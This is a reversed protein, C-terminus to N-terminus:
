NTKVKTSLLSPTPPQLMPAPPAPTVPGAATAEGPHMHANFMQVVQSLYQLLDDGYVLAHTAGDVLEIQTSDVVVKTSAKVTVQGKDVEITVLNSGNSDSVAIVKGGDDLSVLLGQESRIIKLDPTAKSGDYGAPRKDDGWWCGTWIPRTVDGAEFEIWVGSGNAPISWTGVGSGGYPAAPLAWGTDVDALVEPVQAKIRGLNSPDNNDTVLGRYKGFHRDYAAAPGTAAATAAAASM